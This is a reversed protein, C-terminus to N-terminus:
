RHLSYLGAFLYDSFLLSSFLGRRRGTAAREGSRRGQGEVSLGQGSRSDTMGNVGNGRNRDM